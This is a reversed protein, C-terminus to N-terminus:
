QVEVGSITMAVVNDVSAAVWIASGLPMVTSQALFVTEGAGLIYDSLITNGVAPEDGGLVFNMTITVPENSTNCFITEKAVAVVGQPPSYSRVLDTGLAAQAFQTILATSM